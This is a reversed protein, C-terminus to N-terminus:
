KLLDVGLARIVAERLGEGKSDKDSLIVVLPETLTQIKRQTKITLSDYDKQNLIIIGVDSKSNIIQELKNLPVAEIGVLEFGLTFSEEGVVIIKKKM